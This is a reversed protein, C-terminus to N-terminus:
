KAADSASVRYAAKSSTTYSVYGRSHTAVNCRQHSHTQSINTFRQAGVTQYEARSAVATLCQQLDDVLERSYADGATQLDAITNRLLAQAAAFEQREALAKAEDVAATTKVRNRQQVIKLCPTRPAVEAPRSVSVVSAHNQLRSHVVNMYSVEVRVVAAPECSATEHSPLNVEFLIDREEESQIDGMQIDCVTNTANMVFPRKSHVKKLTCGNAAALQVEISQAVTSLLGGLCDAFCQPISDVGEVFYYMGQGAESINKLLDANHDAGYGFTYVSATPVDEKAARMAAVIEAPAQIGENALGDTMLLVSTVSRRDEARRLLDIGKLLGGSLNTMSGARLENCLTHCRAKSESTMATLGYVVKIDSDYTVLAMRDHPRLQKIVFELTKKSNEMKAGAMSGSVDMVCVVDIPTRDTVEHKPAQLTVVGFQSVASTFDVEPSELLVTLSLQLADALAAVSVGSDPIADVETAMSATSAETTESAAPLELTAASDAATASVDVIPTPEAEAAPHDHPQLAELLAQEDIEPHEAETHETHETDMEASFAPHRKSIAQPPAM